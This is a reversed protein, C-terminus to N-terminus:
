FTIRFGLGRAQGAFSAPGGLDLGANPRPGSSNDQTPVAPLLGRVDVPEGPTFSVSARDARYTLVFIVGGSLLSGGGAIYAWSPGGLAAVTIFVGGLIGGVNLALWGGERSGERSEFKGQLTGPQSFKVPGDVVVGNLRLQYDGPSFRADCPASCLTPTGDDNRARASFLLPETGSRMFVRVTPKTPLTSASPASANPATSSPANAANDPSPTDSDPAAETPQAADTEKKPHASRRASPSPPSASPAGASPASPVTSPVVGTAPAPTGPTEARGPEVKVPTPKKVGQARALGPSAVLGVCVLGHVVRSM